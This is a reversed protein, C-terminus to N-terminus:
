PMVKAARLVDRVREFDATTLTGSWTDDGITLTVKAGSKGVYRAFPLLAEVMKPVAVIGASNALAKTDDECPEDAYVKAVATGHGAVIRRNGIHSADRSVRWPGPTGKWGTV